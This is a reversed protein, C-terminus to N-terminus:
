MRRRNMIFKARLALVGTGLLIITGPEPILNTSLVSVNDLGVHMFSETDVEAFRLQFSGITQALDTIDFSYRTYDNPPFDEDAGLYFNRLATTDVSFPDSGVRILDVRAHQNPGNTFSLGNPNIITDGAWNNVFLDFSLIASGTDAPVIITQPLARAGAGSSDSVAYSNGSGPGVTPLGSLPTIDLGTVLFNGPASGSSVSTIWGILGNEFGGNIILQDAQLPSAALAGCLFIGLRWIGRPAGIM